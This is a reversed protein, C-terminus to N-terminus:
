KMHYLEENTEIEKFYKHYEEKIDFLDHIDSGIIDGDDFIPSDPADPKDKGFYSLISKIDDWYYWGLGSFIIIITTGIIAMYKIYKFENNIQPQTEEIGREFTWSTRRSIKEINNDDHRM